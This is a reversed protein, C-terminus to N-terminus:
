LGYHKTLEAALAITGGFPELGGADYLAMDLINELAMQPTAGGLDYTGAIMEAIKNAVGTFDEPTGVGAADAIKAAIDPPSAGLSREVEERIIKRLQSVKIKM